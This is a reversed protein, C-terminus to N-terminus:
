RVIKLITQFIIKLDTLLSIQDLYEKALQIKKPLIQNLYVQEPNPGTLLESEDIFTISAIDTIGPKIKLIDKFEKEFLQVYKPVEPRPGVISMEGKLVNILQPLEDLKSKRLFKGIKTVRRDKKLTIQKGEKEADMVMTRFKYIKFKKGDKGIRIQKFFIEGGDEWKILLAIPLWIPFTGILGILAILIDLGRKGYKRYFDM